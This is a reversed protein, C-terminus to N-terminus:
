ELVVFFFFCVFLCPLFPPLSSSLSPLFFTVQRAHVLGQTRDGVFLQMAEGFRTERHRLYTVYTISGLKLTTPPVWVRLLGGSCM